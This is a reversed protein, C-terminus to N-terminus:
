EWKALLLINKQVSPQAVISVVYKSECHEIKTKKSNNKGAFLTLITSMLKVDRM